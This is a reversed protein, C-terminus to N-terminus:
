KSNVHNLCVEFDGILHLMLYKGNCFGENNQEYGISCGDIVLSLFIIIIIIGNCFRIYM